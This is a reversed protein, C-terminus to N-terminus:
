FLKGQIKPESLILELQYKIDVSMFHNFNEPSLVINQQCQLCEVTESHLKDKLTRTALTINCNECFYHRSINETPPDYIKSRMYDSGNWEEFDPGALLKVFSVLDDQDRRCLKKAESYATIMLLVDSVTLNAAPFMMQNGGLGDANFERIIPQAGTGSEPYNDEEASSEDSSDHSEDSNYYLEDYDNPVMPNAVDESDSHFYSDNKSGVSNQKCLSSHTDKSM